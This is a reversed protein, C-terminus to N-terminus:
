DDLLGGFLLAKLEEHREILVRMRQKARYLVRDFHAATLGLDLCIVDKDDDSLYFRRLIERDRPIALERLASNLQSCATVYDVQKGTRDTHPTNLGIIGDPSHVFRREKRFHMISLNVAVQNIFSALKNADRLEGARLKRILVMFTDQCLDSAVAPDGTRKLLILRVSRAYRAVLEAEADRDGREIREVLEASQADIRERVKLM